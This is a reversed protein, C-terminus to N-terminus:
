ITWTFIWYGMRGLLSDGHSKILHSPWYTMNHIRYVKYTGYRSGDALLTTAVSLEIPELGPLTATVIRLADSLSGGNNVATLTQRWDEIGFNTRDTATVNGFQDALLSFTNPIQSM